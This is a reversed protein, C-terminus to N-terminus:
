GGVMGWAKKAANIIRRKREDMTEPNATPLIRGPALPKLNGREALRIHEGWEGDHMRTLMVAMRASPYRCLFKKDLVQEVLSCENHLQHASMVRMLKLALETRRVSSLAYIGFSMLVVSHSSHEV